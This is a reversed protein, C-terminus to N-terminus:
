LEYRRPTPASGAKIRSGAEVTLKGQAALGDAKGRASAMSIDFHEAIERLTAARKGERLWALIADQDVKVHRKRQGLM